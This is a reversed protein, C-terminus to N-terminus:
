ALFDKRVYTDLIYALFEPEMYAKLKRFTDQNVLARGPESYERFAMARWTVGRLCTVRLFLSVREGVLTRYTEVFRRVEDPSLIVDTKWFTTTPALFHGLDQAPESVLPKEWDVLSSVGQPDILFNGSNLETNVMCLPVGEGAKETLPLNGTEKVLQRLLAEVEPDRKEWDYYHQVM